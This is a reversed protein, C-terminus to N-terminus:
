EMDEVEITPQKALVGLKVLDAVCFGSRFWEGNPSLTMWVLDHEIKFSTHNSLHVQFPVTKKPMPFRMRASAEADAGCEGDELLAIAYGERLTLIRDRKNM